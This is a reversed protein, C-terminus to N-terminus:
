PREEASLLDDVMTLQRSTTDFVAVGHAFPGHDSGLGVITTHSGPGPRQVYAQHHHGHIAWFPQADELIMSVRQRSAESARDIDEGFGVFGTLPAERPADHTLLVDVHDGACRLVDADTVEEGPWWNVYTTLDAKNVSVGGGCVLFSCGDIEFRHGRPLNRVGPAVTRRGDADAPTSTLDVHNDHNGEIFDLEIETSAVLSAMSESFRCLLSGDDTRRYSYGFGFDGLQVLRECSEFAAFAFVREMFEVNGHCDGVLLIRM